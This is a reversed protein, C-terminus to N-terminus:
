AIAAVPMRAGQDGLLARTITERLAHLNGIKRDLTEVNASAAPITTMLRLSNSAEHIGLWAGQMLRLDTNLALLRELAEPRLHTPAVGRGTDTHVIVQDGNAALEVFWQSGDAAELAIANTPTDIDLHLAHALSPMVDGPPLHPLDM